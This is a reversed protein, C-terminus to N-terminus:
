KGAAPPNYKKFRDAFRELASIKKMQEERGFVAGPPVVPKPLLGPIGFLPSRNGALAQEFNNVDFDALSTGSEDQLKYKRNFPNKPDLGGAIKYKGAGGPQGIAKGQSQLRRGIEKLIKERGGFDSVLARGSALDLHEDGFAEPSAMMTEVLKDIDFKGTAVGGEKELGAKTLFESNGMMGRVKAAADKLGTLGAERESRGPPLDTPHGKADLPVQGAPGQVTIPRQKGQVGITRSAQDVFNTGNTPAPDGRFFREVDMGQQMRRDVDEPGSAPNKQLGEYIAQQSIGRRQIEAVKEASLGRMQEGALAAILKQPETEKLNYEALRNGVEKQGLEGRQTDAAAQKEGLGRMAAFAQLQRQLVEAPNVPRPMQDVPTGPGVVPVSWQPASFDAKTLKRFENFDNDLGRNIAGHDIPRTTAPGIGSAKPWSPAPSRVPQENIVPVQQPPQHALIQRDRLGKGMAEDMLRKIEADRNLRDPDLGSGKIADSDFGADQMMQTARTPQDKVAQGFRAEGQQLAQGAGGLAERAGKIMGPIDPFGRSGPPPQGQVEIEPQRGDVAIPARRRDVAPPASEMDTPAPTRGAFPNTATTTAGLFRMWDPLAM